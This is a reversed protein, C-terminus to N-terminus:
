SNLALNSLFFPILFFFMTVYQKHAHLLKGDTVLDETRKVSEPVNFIHKLNEVAAALQFCSFLTLQQKSFHQEKTM